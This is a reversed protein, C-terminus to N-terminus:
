DHTYKKDQKLLVSKEVSILKENYTDLKAEIRSLIALDKDVQLKLLEVNKETETKYLTMRANLETVAVRTYLINALLAVLITSVASWFITRPILINEKLIKDM